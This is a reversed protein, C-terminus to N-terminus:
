PIAATRCCASFLVATKDSTIELYSAFPLAGAPAEQAIIEGLCMTETTKLFEGLLRIRVEPEV